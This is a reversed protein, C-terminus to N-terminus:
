KSVHDKSGFFLVNGTPVALVVNLGRYFYIFGNDVVFSSIDDTTIVESDICSGIKLQVYYDRNFNM